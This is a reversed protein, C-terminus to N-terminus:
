ILRLIQILLRPSHARSNDQYRVTVLNFIFPCRFIDFFVAMEKLTDLGAEELAELRAIEIKRRRIELELDLLESDYKDNIQKRTIQPTHRNASLGSQTILLRLFTLIMSDWPEQRNRLV